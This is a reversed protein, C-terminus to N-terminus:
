KNAYMRTTAISATGFIITLISSVLAVQDPTIDGTTGFYTVITMIVGLIISKKGSLWVLIKNVKSMNSQNDLLSGIPMSDIISRKLNKKLRKM